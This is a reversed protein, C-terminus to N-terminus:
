GEETHVVSDVDQRVTLSVEKDFLLVLIGPKLVSLFTVPWPSMPLGPMRRHTSYVRTALSM